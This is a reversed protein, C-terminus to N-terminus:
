AAIQAGEATGILKNFLTRVTRQGATLNRHLAGMTPAGASRLLAALAQPPQDALIRPDVALARQHQLILFQLSWSKILRRADEGGVLGARTLRALAKPASPQCLGPRGRAAALQLGQAIFDIDIMGGAARKVDWATTAPHEEALLERMERVDNFIDAASRGLRHDIAERRVRMIRRAVYPDGAVVRGRTLAQLEWSWCSELYYSRLASLEVALVGDAGHPRLRMDVDYLAGAEPHCSLAGVLNRATEEFYAAAQPCYSQPDREFVFILDLDSGFNLEGGGLKGLALIACRGPAPGHRRQMAVAVLELAARICRVAEDSLRRAAAEAPTEGTMLDRRIARLTAANDAKLGGLAQSLAQAEPDPPSAPLTFALAIRNRWDQIPCPSRRLFRSRPRRASTPTPLSM